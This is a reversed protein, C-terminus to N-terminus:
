CSLGRQSVVQREVGRAPVARVVFALRLRESGWVGVHELTIVDLVVGLALAAVGAAVLPQQDAPVAVDHASALADLRTQAALEVEDRRRGLVPCLKHRESLGM